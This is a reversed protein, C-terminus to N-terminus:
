TLNLNNVPSDSGVVEDASYIVVSGAFGILLVGVFFAAFAAVLLLKIHTGFRDMDSTNFLLLDKCWLTM